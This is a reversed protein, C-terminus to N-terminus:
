TLLNEERNLWGALEYLSSFELSLKATSLLWKENNHLPVKLKPITNSESVSYGSRKVAKVTWQKLIADGEIYIAGKNEGIFTYIGNESNFKVSAPDFLHDFAGEIM